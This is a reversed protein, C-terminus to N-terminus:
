AHADTAPQLLVRAAILLEFLGLGFLVIFNLPNLSIMRYLALGTWVASSGVSWIIFCAWFRRGGDQKASGSPKWGLRKGRIADWYAFFHAWESILRASWSELRFPAHHWGPFVVSGYIIVPVMFIMNKFLLVKPLCILIAITIAPMFFLFLSSYIYYILGSAFCIRTYLSLKASWFKASTLLDVTGACWRYQQNLFALVNDPCNGTSLAVPIYHLGWGIAKLDYGTLMDESHEALTMGLNEKLAERRYVACSGVCIAGGKRARASQISRYFLEQTAGAGREVWTQDDTVHFFQPTQLIGLEPRSDMYPVTEDLFDHRPAFDADLLMIFEGYSVQYGFWLNGSKKFWGRNPRTAYVFGFERAMAKLEPSHSDDLVYATVTGQYHRGMVAVYHWTNRLVDIPEGCVPLFVDVSPYRAPKWSAVLRKHADFDFGRGIADTLLPMALFIATLFLFPSYLWFWHYHLMMRIQGYMLLPFSGVGLVTVLWAYRRNYRYKEEDLPPTPMGQGTSALQPTPRGSPPPAVRLKGAAQGPPPAPKDAPPVERLPAIKATSKRVAPLPQTMRDEVVADAPRATLSDASALQVANGSAPRPPAPRRQARASGSLDASGAEREGSPALLDDLIWAAPGIESNGVTITSFQDDGINRQAHADANTTGAAVDTV